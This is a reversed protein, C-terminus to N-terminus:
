GARRKRAFAMMVAIPVVKPQEWRHRRPFWELWVGYDKAYLRGNHTHKPITTPM